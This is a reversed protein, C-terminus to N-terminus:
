TGYGKEFQMERSENVEDLISDNTRITRDSESADNKELMVVDQFKGNSKTRVRQICLFNRTWIAGRQM